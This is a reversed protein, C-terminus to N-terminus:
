CGPSVGSVPSTEATGLEEVDLVERGDLDARWGLGQVEVKVRARGVQPHEAGLGGLALLLPWFSNRMSSLVM